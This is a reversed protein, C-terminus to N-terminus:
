HALLVNLYSVIGTETDQVALSVIQTDPDTRRSVLRRTSPNQKVSM